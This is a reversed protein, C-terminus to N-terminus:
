DCADGGASYRRGITIGGDEAVRLMQLLTRPGVGGSSAVLLLRLPSGEETITWIGPPRGARYVNRWEGVGSGDRLTRVFVGYSPYASDTGGHGAVWLQVEINPAQAPRWRVCATYPDERTPDPAPGCGRGPEAQNAVELRTVRARESLVGVRAAVLDLGAAGTRAAAAPRHTLALLIKPQLCDSGAACALTEIHEARIGRDSIVVVPADASLGLSLEHWRAPVQPSDRDGACPADLLVVGDEKMVFLPGDWRVEATGELGWEEPIAPRAPPGAAPHAGSAAGDPEPVAVAVTGVVTEGERPSPVGPPLGSDPPPVVKPAIQNTVDRPGTGGPPLGVSGGPASSRPAGARSPACGTAAVLALVCWWRVASM